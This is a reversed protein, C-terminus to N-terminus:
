RDLCQIPANIRPAIPNISKTTQNVSELSSAAIFQYYEDNALQTFDNCIVGDSVCQQGSLPNNDPRM